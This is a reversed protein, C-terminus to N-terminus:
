LERRRFAFVALMVFVVAGLLGTAIPWAPAADMGRALLSVTEGLGVPSYARAPQWLGALSLLVYAGFGIGFAAITNTVLCSALTTVAILFIALVLWTGVARWLHSADVGDFLLMTVLQVLATGAAAAIAVLAVIATLKALVFSARSVPKTLPGIVTGSNIESAVSAAAVVLVVVILLQSLDQTWQTFADLYVPDPVEIPMQDGVVSGLIEKTFRALIPDAIGMLIFAGGMLWIRWTRIIETFEKRLMPLYGTM